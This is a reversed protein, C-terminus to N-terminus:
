PSDPGTEEVPASRKKQITLTIDNDTIEQKAIKWDFNMLLNEIREIELSSQDVSM